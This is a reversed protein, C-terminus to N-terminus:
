MNKRGKESSMNEQFIWFCLLVLVMGRQEQHKEGDQESSDSRDSSNSSGRGVQRLQRQWGTPAVAELRAASSNSSGSPSQEVM